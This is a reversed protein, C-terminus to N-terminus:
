STSVMKKKWKWVIRGSIAKNKRRISVYKYVVEANQNTLAFEQGPDDMIKDIKCVNSIHKQFLDKM